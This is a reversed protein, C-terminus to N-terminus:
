KKALMEEIKKIRDDQAVDRAEIDAQSVTNHIETFKKMWTRGRKTIFPFLVFILLYWWGIEHVFSTVEHITSATTGPAPLGQKAAELAVSTDVQENPFAMQATAVGAGAGIAAGGPGAVAAGLAAGAAGGGIPALMSCGATVFLLLVAVIKM